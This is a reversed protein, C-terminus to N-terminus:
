KPPICHICSPVSLNLSVNGAALGHHEASAEGSQQRRSHERIMEVAHSQDLAVCIRFRGLNAFANGLRIVNVSEQQAPPLHEIDNTLQAHLFARADDGAAHLLGYRELKAIGTTAM